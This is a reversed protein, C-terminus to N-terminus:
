IKELWEPSVGGIAGGKRVDVVGHELNNREHIVIDGDGFAQYSTPHNAEYYANYGPKIRYRTKTAQRFVWVSLVIVAGILTGFFLYICLVIVQGILSFDIM